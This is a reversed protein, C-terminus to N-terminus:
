KGKNARDKATKGPRHKKTAAFCNQHTRVQNGMARKDADTMYASRPLKDSM